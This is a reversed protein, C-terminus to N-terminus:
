SDFLDDDNYVGLEEYFRDSEAKQALHEEKARKYTGAPIGMNKESESIENDSMEALMERWRKDYDAQEEAERELREERARQKKLEVYQEESMGKCLVLDMYEFEMEGKQQRTRTIAAKHQGAKRKDTYIYRTSGPTKDKNRRNKQVISVLGKKELKAFARQITRKPINTEKMIQKNEIKTYAKNSNKIERCIIAYIIKDTPSLGKRALLLAELFLGSNKMNTNGTTM